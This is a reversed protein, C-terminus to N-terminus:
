VLVPSCQSVVLRPPAATDRVLATEASSWGKVVEAGLTVAVTALDQETQISM